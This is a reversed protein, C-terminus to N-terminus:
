KEFYGEKEVFGNKVLINKISDVACDFRGRRTSFDYKEFGEGGKFFVLHPEITFVTDHNLKKVIDDLKAEGYGAPVVKMGKADKIHFYYAKDLFESITTDPSQKSLIFNAPDYIIKLNPVAALLKKLGKVNGGYLKTDNEHCYVKNNKTLIEVLYSLKKVVKEFSGITLFTYFSFGRINDTMFADALRCLHEAKAKEKNIDTLVHVKALPSGLSWVDINAEKFKQCYSVAEDISLKSVNKGDITRVEVLSINNDNLAAIQEDITKGGEDAFACLRIKM